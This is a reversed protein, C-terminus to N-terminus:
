INYYQIATWYLQSYKQKRNLNMGAKIKVIENFVSESKLHDKAQVIFSIKKFDEFDLGKM